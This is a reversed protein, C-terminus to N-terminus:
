GYCSDCIGIDFIAPGGDGKLKNVMEGHDDKSLYFLIFVKHMSSLLSAPGIKVSMVDSLLSSNLFISMVIESTEFESTTRSM